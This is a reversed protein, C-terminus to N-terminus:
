SSGGAHALYAAELSAEAIAGREAQYVLRGGSLIVVRDALAAARAADHTVLVLARGADRLSSLRAGLRESGARDLGTFPEDLLLLEPDHVLGRAVALRQAMGRSFTGAARGAVAALGVEALLADARAAPDAVGYLRGAFILNERATLAGYLFTAHAVLGVRARAAPRDARVGAITVEGSTPRSLGALLRLLTSKGAGNPGLVALLSGPPVALDVGELASLAGFRKVVGRARLVAESV